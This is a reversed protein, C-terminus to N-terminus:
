RGIGMVEGVAVGISSGFDSRDVWRKQHIGRVREQTPDDSM